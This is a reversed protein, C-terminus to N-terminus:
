LKVKLTKVGHISVIYLGSTLNFESEGMGTAVTRGTLDYITVPTTADIGAVTIVGAHASISVNSGITPRLGTEYDDGFYGQADSLRMTKVKIAGGITVPQLKVFHTEPSLPVELGFPFHNKRLVRITRWGPTIDCNRSELIKLEPSGTGEYELQLALYKATPEFYVMVKDSTSTLTAYDATIEGSAQVWHPYDKQSTQTIDGVTEFPAVENFPAMNAPLTKAAKGFHTEGSQKLAPFDCTSMKVTATFSQTGSMDTIAGEPFVVEYDSNVNLAEYNINIKKGSAVPTITEWQTKGKVTATGNYAVDQNFTLSLTGDAYSMNDNVLNGSTLELPENGGPLYREILIDNIDFKMANNDVKFQVTGSATHTYAFKYVKKKNGLTMEQVPTEQGNVITSLKVTKSKKDDPNGLWFTIVCPGSVAPTTMYGGQETTYFQVCRETAGEDDPTAPGYDASADSSYCGPMAIIRITNDGAGFTMGGLTVSSNKSNFINTNASVNGYKEAYEAPTTHFDTYFLVGGETTSFSWVDGTTTGVENTADVRWYYTKGAALDTPTYKRDTIKGTVATLNERDTGFYVTYSVAGFWDKTPNEWTLTLGGAIGEKAGDAPFPDTSIKPASPDGTTETAVADTYDSYLGNGDAARLRVIYSTEPTLGTVTASEAGAAATAVQTYTAGKDTSAEIIFGHATNKNIGWTLDLDTKGQRTVKLDVPKKIYPYAETLSNAYNEINLYGNAAIAVADAADNPNLGNAIEWADPIGDGDTDLPKVGGSLIGTGKHPLTKETSIGNKTGVTGHSMLEDILYQDVEDRVPLVPGVNKEIWYLAEEATMMGEIVPIPSSITRDTESNIKDLIPNNGEDQAHIVEHIVTNNLEELSNIPTSAWDVKIAEGNQIVTKGRVWGRQEDTTLLRGNVVGDKNNDYYNGAGYFHFAESGRIFPATAGNWPGNMFYNNEIHAWSAGETEGMIYAGGGGWNYVVNNVFQTLGKVKPNRTKNEIYLNRFLSVGHDTQILGGCSHSQLGQGIISNQITINRPGNSRDNSSISFNEDRGWLVSLHDFIMDRSGDAAGAADKGSTGNIGMRFRMHRVILNNANSFSVRDGYVQIGEGPATQGLVTTSGKFVLGSKLNIVGSVDFVIVRGAKSVADRLSGPGSDNLNTVHYVQPNDVARAGQTYRGFGEAGPFALLQEQAQLGGGAMIMAVALATLTRKM